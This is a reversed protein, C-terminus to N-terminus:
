RTGQGHAVEVSSLHMYAAYPRPITQGAATAKAQTCDQRCLSGIMTAGLWIIGIVVLVVVMAIVRTIGLRNQWEGSMGAGEAGTDMALSSGQHSPADSV